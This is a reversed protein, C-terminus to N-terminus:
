PGPRGGGRGAADEFPFVAEAERLLPLAADRASVVPVAVPWPIALDPDDWRIGADLEPAYEQTVKYFVDADTSLVCFGHAFGPPVYLAQHARDSLVVAVWRGWTPSGRRLDVAVDFIEGRLVSVLKGQARPPRQYHLGRLVGQRSRSLNDQVFEDPIGHAAFVSRRYHELFVGRADEFASATVLVVDPIELRQFTFAM